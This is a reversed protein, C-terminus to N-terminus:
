EDVHDGVPEEQVAATVPGRGTGQDRGVFPVVADVQGGDSVRIPNGDSPHGLLM